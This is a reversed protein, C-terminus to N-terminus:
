PEESGDEKGTMGDLSFINEGRAILQLAIGPISSGEDEGLGLSLLYNGGIKQQLVVARTGTARHAVIDGPEFKCDKDWVLSVDSGGKKRFSQATRVGLAGKWQYRQRWSLHSRAFLGM